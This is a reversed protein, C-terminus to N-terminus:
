GLERKLMKHAHNIKKFEEMEGGADPHHEKALQKYKQNILEIDMCDEDVGLIERAEKRMKEIDKEERFHEVFEESTMEKNLLSKIEMEIVKSIVYLNEVFKNLLKYSLYMNRGDFYWSAFADGKMRANRQLSVDIDDEDVGVKKLSEVINNKFLLARRDYSDRIVLENFEHGKVTIRTM